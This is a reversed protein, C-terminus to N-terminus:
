IIPKYIKTKKQKLPKKITKMAIDQKQNLMKTKKKNKKQKKKKQQRIYEMIQRHEDLEQEDGVFAPALNRSNLHSPTGGMNGIGYGANGSPEIVLPKPKVEKKTPKNKKDLQDVLVKDVVEEEKKSFGLRDMAENAATKVLGKAMDQVLEDKAFDKIAPIVHEKITPIVHEKALDIAQKGYGRILNFANQLFSM